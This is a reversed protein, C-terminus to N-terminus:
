WCGLSPRMILLSVASSIPIPNNDAHEVVAASVAPWLGRYWTEIM